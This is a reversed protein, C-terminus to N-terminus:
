RDGHGGRGRHDDRDGRRDDRRDRGRDDHRDRGRDDHKGSHRGERWRADKEWHRDREWKRWHKNYQGHPIRHHGNAVHRYRHFDHPLGVVARPVREYTVYKWPGNHGRGRFWHNDHHRWWYGQYFLVSVDVDPVMYVYTGPIVVVPPPERFAFPPPAIIGVNVNVGADAREAFGASLVVVAVLAIVAAIKKMVCEM